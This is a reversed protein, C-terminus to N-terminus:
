LGDRTAKLGVSRNGAEKPYDLETPTLHTGPMLLCVSVLPNWHRHSLAQNEPFGLSVRGLTMSSKYRLAETERKSAEEKCISWSVQIIQFVDFWGVLLLLCVFLFGGQSKYFGV